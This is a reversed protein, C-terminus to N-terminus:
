NIYTDYYSNGKDANKPLELNEIFKKIEKETTKLPFEYVLNVNLIVTKKTPKM